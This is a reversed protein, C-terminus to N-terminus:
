VGHRRWLELGGVDGPRDYQWVLMADDPKQMNSEELLWYDIEAPSSDIQAPTLNHVTVDREDRLEFWMGLAPYGQDDVVMLDIPDSQIELYDAAEELGYGGPWGSIYQFRDDTPLAVKEPATVIYFAQVGMGAIAASVLLMAAPKRYHQAAWHAMVIVVPITSFLVYRSFIRQGIVSFIVPFLLGLLCLFLIPRDKSLCGLMLVICGLPTVLMWFWGAILGWNEVVRALQFGAKEAIQNSAYGGLVLAVFALAAPVTWKLLATRQQADARLVVAAIVPILFAPAATAKALVGGLLGTMLLLGAVVSRPQQFLKLTAFVALVSFTMHINDALVMHDMFFVFPLLTYFFGALIGTLTSFLQRATLVVGLMTLLSFSAAALRGAELPELPLQMPLWWIIESLLKGVVYSVPLHGHIARNLHIAEDMFMPLVNLSLLRLTAFLIVLAALGIAYAGYTRQTM